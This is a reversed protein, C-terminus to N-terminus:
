AIKNREIDYSYAYVNEYCNSKEKFGFNNPDFYNLPDEAKGNIRLEFHLHPSYQTHSKKGHQGSVAIVEGKKVECNSVCNFGDLTTDKKLRDLHLYRTEINDPHKIVLTNETGPGNVYSVIIGDAIAIVDEYNARLDIGEHYSTGEEDNRNGFCSTVIRQSVPFALNTNGIKLSREKIITVLNPNNIDPTYSSSAKNSIIKNGKISLERNGYKYNLNLIGPAILATNRILSADIAIFKDDLVSAESYGRILSVGAVVVVAVLLINIIWSLTFEIGRKNM